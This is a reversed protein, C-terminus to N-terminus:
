DVPSVVSTDSTVRIFAGTYVANSNLDEYSTGIAQADSQSIEDAADSFVLDDVGDFSVHLERKNM